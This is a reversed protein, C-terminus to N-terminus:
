PCPMVNNAAGPTPPEGAIFRRGDRRGDACRQISATDKPIEEVQVREVAGMMGLLTDLLGPDDAQGTDYVLVDILNAATVVTGNPFDATPAQYVGVADQGNQVVSNGALPITPMPMMVSSGVLLMGNADTVGNLNLVMYSVDGNGNWFVLSYGALSVGPVGTVIEVFEAMDTATQDSDVENILLHIVTLGFPATVGNPTDVILDQAGIPTVDPVVTITIQADSDVTFMQMMGAITVSTAGTFGSGTIVLKGGHAIVPYSVSTIKTALCFMDMACDTDACDPSGDCDNDTVDDCASETLGGPCMCAGGTCVSGFTDCTQTDCDMADACDILMDGDEDLGNDCIEVVMCLPDAACDMDACDALTDFDDDAVNDCVEPSQTKVNAAGPTLTNTGGWDTADDGTDQGNPFRILSATTLLNSDSVGLPMGAVLNYLNMDITAMTLSGEYSLADLVVKNVGDFLALGDTAGNQINDSVKLLKVVLAGPDIGMVGDAAVVLYQGAALTGQLPYDEYSMSNFGNIFVLRVGALDVPGMGANWIEIFEASDTGLQDYDVENIVLKGCIAAAACDTDACDIAMDGDDDAMNDCDEVPIPVGGVGGMGGQGAGGAGGQGTGGAGGQGAGGQGGVGGGGSGSTTASSTTASGTTSSTAGTTSSSSPDSGGSGGPGSTSTTDRDDGCAGAAILLSLFCGAAIFSRARIPM